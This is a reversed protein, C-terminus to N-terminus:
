VVNRTNELRAARNSSSKWTFYAFPGIVLIMLINWLRAPM